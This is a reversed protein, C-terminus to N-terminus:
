TMKGTMTKGSSTRSAYLSFNQVTPPQRLRKKESAFGTRSPSVRTELLPFTSVIKSMTDLNTRRSALSCRMPRGPAQDSRSRSSPASGQNTDDNPIM